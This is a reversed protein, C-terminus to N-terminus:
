RGTAKKVLFGVPWAVLGSKTFYVQKGGNEWKLATSLGLLIETGALLRQPPNCVPNIRVDDILERARERLREPVKDPNPQPIIGRRRLAENLKHLKEVSFAVQPQAEDVMAELDTLASIVFPAGGSLFIKPRGVLGPHRGIQDEVSEEFRTREATAVTCFDNFSGKKLNQREMAKEISTTFALTGEWKTDILYFRSVSAVRGPPVFYGGKINGSGVDVLVADRVDALPIAGQISHEAEEKLSIEELTKAGGTAAAVASALENFNVPKNMTVGSSAVIFIHEPPVNRKQTLNEYFDKVAAGAEAIAEPQYKGGKLDKLAVNNVAKHPLKKVVQALDASGAADIPLAVVKIGTAGIEILGYWSAEDARVPRALVVILPVFAGCVLWRKSRCVM